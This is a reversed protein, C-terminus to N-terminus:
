IAPSCRLWAYHRKNRMFPQDLSNRHKQDLKVHEIRRQMWRAVNVYGLRFRGAVYIWKVTVPRTKGGEITTKSTKSKTKNSKEKLYKWTLKNVFMSSDTRITSHEEALRCHDMNWSATVYAGVEGTFPAIIQIGLTKRSDITYEEKDTLWPRIFRVYKQSWSEPYM